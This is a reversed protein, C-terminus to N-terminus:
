AVEEIKGCRNCVHSDPGSLARLVQRPEGCTPCPPAAEEPKKESEEAQLGIIVAEVQAIAAEHTAQTARLQAILAQRDM